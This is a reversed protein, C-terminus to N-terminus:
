DKYIMIPTSRPYFDRGFDGFNVPSDEIAMDDFQRNLLVPRCSPCALRNSSWNKCGIKLPDSCQWQQDSQPIEKKINKKHKKRSSWKKIPKYNKYYDPNNEKFKVQHTKKMKMFCEPKGCCKTKRGTLPDGCYKCFLGNPKPLSRVTNKM